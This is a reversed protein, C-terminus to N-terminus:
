SVEQRTFIYIPAFQKSQNISVLGLKLLELVGLFVAVKEHRTGTFLLDSLVIGKKKNASLLRMIDAMKEQVSFAQPEIYATPIEESRVIDTLALLLHSANYKPFIIDTEDIFSPCRYIMKDAAEKMLLLEEAASKIKRYEVLMEVLMQCPDADDEGEAVPLKPLLMRSKIQLLTAAMILFDSAAEMDFEEMAKLYAIYQETISVIPIDYIDIKNKEILHLLLDLPGEFAILKLSLAQM